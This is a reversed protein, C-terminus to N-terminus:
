DDSWPRWFGSVIDAGTMAKQRLAYDINLLDARGMVGVDVEPPGKGARNGGTGQSQKRVPVQLLLLSSEIRRGM